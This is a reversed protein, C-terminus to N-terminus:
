RAWVESSRLSSGTPGSHLSPLYLRYRTHFGDFYVGRNRALVARLAPVDSSSFAPYQFVLHTFLRRAQREAKILSLAFADVGRTEADSGLILDVTTFEEAVNMGMTAWRVLKGAGHKM